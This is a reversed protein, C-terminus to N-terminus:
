SNFPAPSHQQTPHWTAVSFDQYFDVVFSSSPFCKERKGQRVSRPLPAIISSTGPCCASIVTPAAAATGPRRSSFLLFFVCCFLLFHFYLHPAAVKQQLLLAPPAVKFVTVATATISTVSLRHMSSYHTSLMLTPHLLSQLSVAPGSGIRLQLLKNTFLTLCAAQRCKLVLKVLGISCPSILALSDILNQTARPAADRRSGDARRLLATPKSM